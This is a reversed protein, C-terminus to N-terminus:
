LGAKPKSPIGSKPQANQMAGSMLRGLEQLQQAYAQMQTQAYKSQIAFASTVSTANALEGALTFGAETNEKAFNMSREHVAKFGSAAENAPLAAWWLGSAQELADSYQTCAARGQEINKGALERLQQPVEFTKSNIM